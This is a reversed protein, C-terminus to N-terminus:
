RGTYIVADFFCVPVRCLIAFLNGFDVIERVKQSTCLRRVSMGQEPVGSDTSYLTQPTSLQCNCAASSTVLTHAVREKIGEM